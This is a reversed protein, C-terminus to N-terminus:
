AARKRPKIAKLTPGLARRREMLDFDSQMGLFFVVSVGFYRALRLDPPLNGRTYWARDRQHATASASRELSSRRPCIWSKLFEELLIKGPHPNSLLEATTNSSKSM